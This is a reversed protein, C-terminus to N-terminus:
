TDMYPPNPPVTARILFEFADLKPSIQVMYIYIQELYVISTILIIYCAMYPLLPSHCGWLGGSWFDFLGIELKPSIQVM